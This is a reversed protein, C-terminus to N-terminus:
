QEQYFTYEIKRPSKGSMRYYWFSFFIRKGSVIALEIEETIGTGTSEFNVCRFNIINNEMDTQIKVDRKSDKEEVFELIISFKLEESADVRFQMKNENKPIFAIGSDLINYKETKIQIDM